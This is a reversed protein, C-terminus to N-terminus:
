IFPFSCLFVILPTLRVGVNNLDLTVGRGVDGRSVRGRGEKGM